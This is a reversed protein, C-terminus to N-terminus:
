FILQLIFYAILIVVIAGVIWAFISGTSRPAVPEVSSVPTVAPGRAPDVPRNEPTDYVEVGSMGAPTVGPTVTPEVVTTGDTRERKRLDTTM